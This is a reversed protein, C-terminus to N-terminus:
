YWCKGSMKTVWWFVDSGTKPQELVSVSCLWQNTSLTEKDAALSTRRLHQLSQPQCCTDSCEGAPWGPINGQMESGVGSDVWLMSGAKTGAEGAAGWLHPTVRSASSTDRGIPLATQLGAHWPPHRATGWAALAYTSNRGPIAVQQWWRTMQLKSCSHIKIYKDNVTSFTYTNNSFKWVLTYKWFAAHNTKWFLQKM